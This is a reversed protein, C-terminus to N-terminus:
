IKVVGIGGNVIRNVIGIEDLRDGMKLIIYGNLVYNWQEITEEIGVVDASGFDKDVYVPLVIEPNIASYAQRVYHVKGSYGFCGVSLLIWTVFLISLMKM